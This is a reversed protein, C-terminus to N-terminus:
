GTGELADIMRHEREVDIETLTEAQTMPSDGVDADM